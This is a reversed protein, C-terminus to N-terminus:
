LESLFYETNPNDLDFLKSITFKRSGDASHFVFLGVQGYLIGNVEMPAFSYVATQNLFDSEYLNLHTFSCVVPQYLICYYKASEVVAIEKQTDSQSLSLIQNKPGYLYNYTNSFKLYGAYLMDNAKVTSSRFVNGCATYISAGNESFWLDGCISYEGFYPSEYLWVTPVTRVDFKEIDDTTLGDNAGYIYDGTPHLRAHEQQFFSEAGIKETNTAVEVSHIKLWDNVLPFAHVYGRGDLVIDFVVASVNLITKPDEGAQGIKTLDVYTILADHGVAAHLGDPGVSVAAPPKALLLQTETNSNIDYVYLANSPYSSVMVIADLAKSYEADIVDHPLSRIHSPTLPTVDPEVVEGLPTISYHIPILLPAANVYNVCATTYCLQVSLTDDHTGLDLNDPSVTQVTLRVQTSSLQTSVVSSVISQSHQVSVYPSVAIPTQLNLTVEVSQASTGREATVSIQEPSADITIPTAALVTYQVPIQLPSGAIRQTCTQDLCVDFSISGEYVGPALKSPQQLQVSIDVENKSVRVWTATDIAAASNSVSAYLMVQKLNAVAIPITVPSVVEGVTKTLSISAPSLSIYPGSDGEGGGCGTLVGALVSALIWLYRFRM